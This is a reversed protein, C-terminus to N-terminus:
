FATSLSIFPLSLKMTEKKRVPIFVKMLEQLGPPDNITWLIPIVEGIGAKSPNFINDNTESDNTSGM